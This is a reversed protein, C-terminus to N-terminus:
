RVAAARPPAALAPGLADVTEDLGDAVEPTTVFGVDLFLHRELGRRAGASGAAGAARARRGGYAAPV